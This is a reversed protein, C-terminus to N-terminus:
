PRRMTSSTSLQEWASMTSRLVLSQMPSGSRCCLVLRVTSVHWNLTEVLGASNLIGTDAGKTVVPTKQSCSGGIAAAAAEPLRLAEAM